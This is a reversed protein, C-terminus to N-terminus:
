KNLSRTCKNGNVLSTMTKLIEGCVDTENEMSIFDIKFGIGGNKLSVAM